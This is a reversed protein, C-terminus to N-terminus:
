RKFPLFDEGDNKDYLFDSGLLNGRVISGKGYKERIKDVALDLKENKENRREDFMSVQAGSGARALDFVSVTLTRLPTLDWNDRILEIAAQAIETSSYTPAPLKKQRSLTELEFSRMSVHVGSGRVGYKRMRAAVLDTLYYVMTAADNLTTVDRVATMGHGVSEIDREKNYDRVPEDDRGQAAARIKLGNVGFLKKLVGSDAQALDGITFVNIKKLKEYTKKGVMIMENAALPWLKTQFDDPTIVTTADPKKLDSGLKAFVKNFSVGVSLTLGLTTKVTERIDDATRAAEDFSHVCGTLDLWCEDAGFPEVSPTYRTYLDFAQKSFGSYVDFHPPVLHLDPAKQRAEWVVDGTRIGYRKAIENKALIVGHRKGPDGCVGLPVDRLAPNLLCEVSAYFNNLDCHLVYREM